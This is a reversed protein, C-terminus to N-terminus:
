EKPLGLAYGNSYGIYSDFANFVDESMYRFTVLTSPPATWQNIIIKNPDRAFRVHGDSYAVNYGSRHHYLGQPLVPGTTDLMFTDSILAIVNHTGSCWGGAGGGGGACRPRDIKEYLQTWGSGAAPAPGHAPTVGSWVSDHTPMGRFCYASRFDTSAADVLQKFGSPSDKGYSLYKALKTPPDVGPLETPCYYIKGSNIYGYYLLLGLGHPRGDGYAGLNNLFNWWGGGVTGGYPISGDYEGAYLHVGMILQKLNSMCHTRKAAERANKLAPMLLSALIAIIAVVVLLEILTFSHRTVLSSHRTVLPALRSRSESGHVTEGRRLRRRLAPFRSGRDRFGSGQFRFETKQRTKM